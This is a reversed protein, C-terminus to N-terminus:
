NKLKEILDEVMQKNNDSSLNKGIIKEAAIMATEVIEQKIDTQMQEKEKNIQDRTKALSLSSEERAEAIIEKKVDTGEKKSLSIIEDAELKSAKLEQESMLKNKAAEKKLHEADKIEKEIKEKRAELFAGIPDWFFHWVLAWVIVLSVVTGLAVTWSVNILPIGANSKGDNIDHNAMISTAIVMWLTFAIIVIVASWGAVKRIKDKRTLPINKKNQKKIKENERYVDLKAKKDAKKTEKLVKRDVSQNKNEEM